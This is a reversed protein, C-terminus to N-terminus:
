SISRHRLILFEQGYQEDHIEIAEIDSQIVEQNYEIQHCRDEVESIKINSMRQASEVQSVQVRMEKMEDKIASIEQQVSQM